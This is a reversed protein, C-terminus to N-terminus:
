TVGQKKAGVTHLNFEINRSERSRGESEKDRMECDVQPLDLIRGSPGSPEYASKVMLPNPQVPFVIINKYKCQVDLYVSSNIYVDLGNEASCWYKGSQNRNATFEFPDGSAVTKGDKLWTITPTPNGTATCHFTTEDGEKVTQNGPKSTFSPPVPFSM